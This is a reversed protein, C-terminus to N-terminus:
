FVVLIALAAVVGIGLWVTVARASQRRSSDDSSPCAFAEGACQAARILQTHRATVGASAAKM